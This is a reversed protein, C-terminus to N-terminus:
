TRKGGDADVSQFDQTIRVPSGGNGPFEIVLRTIPQDELLVGLRKLFARTEPWSLVEISTIVGRM